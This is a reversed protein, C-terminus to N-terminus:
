KRQEDRNDEKLNYLAEIGYAIADVADKFEHKHAKVITCMDKKDEPIHLELDIAGSRTKSFELKTNAIKDIVSKAKM